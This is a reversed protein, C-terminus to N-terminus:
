DLMELFNTREVVYTILDSKFHCHLKQKVNNLHTTVTRGSIGLALGIAKATKGRLLHVVCDFERGTLFCVGRSTLLEIRQQKNNERLVGSGRYSHVFNCVSQCRQIPVCVGFVGVVEDYSNLLPYKDTCVQRVTGDLFEHAEVIGLMPEGSSIIAQDAGRVESFNNEMSFASVDLDGKGLCRAISGFGAMLSFEENCDVFQLSLDKCFSAGSMRRVLHSFGNVRMACGLYLNFIHYYGGM